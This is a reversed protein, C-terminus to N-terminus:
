WHGCWGELLFVKGSVVFLLVLFSFLSTLIFFRASFLLFLRVLPLSTLSFIHFNLFFVLTIVLAIALQNGLILKLANSCGYISKSNFCKLSSTYCTSTKSASLM